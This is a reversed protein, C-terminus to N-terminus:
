RQSHVFFKYHYEKGTKDNVTKLKIVYLNCSRMYNVEIKKVGITYYRIIEKISDEDDDVGNDLCEQIKNEIFSLDIYYSSYKGRSSIFGSM